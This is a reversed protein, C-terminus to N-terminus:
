GSPPPSLITCPQIAHASLGAFLARAPEDRFIVRALLAAPWPARLAFAAFALPHRPMRLPGLLDPAIRPWNRVIGAVLREWGGGDRQLAAITEDLNRALLAASGDDLPHALALDPQVWELSYDALPLSRMFPSGLGLPHIASCIDHTFGPLTLEASRMGGGITDRAEILLVSRGSQALTVAAALGNPGSGVVVADYSSIM